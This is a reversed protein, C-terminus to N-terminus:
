SWATVVGSNQRATPVLWDCAFSARTRTKSESRAKGGTPM